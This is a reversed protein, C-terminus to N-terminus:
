LSIQNASITFEYNFGGGSRSTLNLQGGRGPTARLLSLAGRLSSRECPIPDGTEGLHQFPRPQLPISGGRSRPVLDDNQSHCRSHWVAAKDIYRGLGHKFSFTAPYVTGTLRRMLAAVKRSETSWRNLALCSDFRRGRPAVGLGVLALGGNYKTLTM